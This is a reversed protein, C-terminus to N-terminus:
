YYYVRPVRASIGTLVEYSITGALYALQDATIGGGILIVPDGIQANSVGSVDFMAHDMCITGIQPCLQGGIVAQAKNSLARMYGDAYGISVTAVRIDTSAAYNLGYSLSQGAKLEFVNVIQSQLGMAPILKSPQALQPEPDYGYMAIGVRVMDFHLNPRLLAGGSNCCHVIPEFGANQAERVYSLFLEAQRDTYDSDLRSSEAFHTCLGQMYLNPLESSFAALISSFEEHTRLGRRNMGTDVKIHVGIRKERRRAEAQLLRLFDLSSEAPSLGYSVLNQVDGSNSAGLIIIPLEIGRKRLIVGEEVLAVALYDALKKEQIFRSVEVAGHGYADAKVVACLMAGGKLGSKILGLNKEIAGLSVTAFTNRM